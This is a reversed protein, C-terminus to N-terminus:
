GRAARLNSKIKEMGPRALSTRGFRNKFDEEGMHLIEDASPMSVNTTLAHKNFPCAEQCRDCGLFCKKMMPGLAPPIDGKHEITLYALCKLANLHYPKELAGTPCAEMCATCAGCQDAMPEIVPYQLPATTLIEVLFLYSGYGPIVLLTNKGIFGLGSQWAISKEQIPSSDVCVRARSGPYDKQIWEFLDEGLKKLRFHYDERSPDAYRAVRYGDETEHRANPYPYALSIITQCGELLKSPDERVDLNRELWTMDGNKRDALRSLFSDFYAPRHPRSFGVAIFGLTKAQETFQSIIKTQKVHVQAKSCSGREALCFRSM